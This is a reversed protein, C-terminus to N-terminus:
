RSEGPSAEMVRTESPVGMGLGLQMAYLIFEPIEPLQRFGKRDRSENLHTMLNADMVVPDVSMWIEPLSDTYNANFAPGAIYQYNELSVLNLAWGASLEPIAAIEAVAVPANAPSNLFRIGNTINWLTANVLAGSLGTAPHHSAVPLNIWFDVDGFLIKPLYSKRAEVPDLEISPMLIERGLPSTYERPLPSEYFWTPSTLEGTSMAYVRINGYYSGEEGVRSLPPLYGAERLHDERADIICIEDESFGRRLLSAIVGDVMAKPTCLGAGSNTYVKLAVKGHRAPALKKGTTKEFSSLLHEVEVSYAKESFDPLERKWLMGQYPRRADEFGWFTDDEANAVLTLLTM